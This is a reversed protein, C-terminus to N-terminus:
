TYNYFILYSLIQFFFLTRIFNYNYYLYISIITILNSIIFCTLGMEYHFNIKEFKNKNIDFNKIFSDKSEFIDELKNKFGDHIDLKYKRINIFIRSPFECNYLFHHFKHVKFLNDKNITDYLVTFDYIVSYKPHSKMLNYIGTTRPYLHYKFRTLNNKKTYKDSIKKTMFNFCTGEPFIYLLNADNNSCIKEYDCKIDRKLYLDKSLLSFMGVGLLINGVLKKAVFITKFKFLHYFNKFNTLFYSIFFYDIESFHNQIVIVQRDEKILSNALNNSNVFVETGIIYKLMFAISIFYINKIGFGFNQTYLNLFSVPTMLVLASMLYNIYIYLSLLLFKIKIM